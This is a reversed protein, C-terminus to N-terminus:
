HLRSPIPFTDVETLPSSSTSKEDQITRQLTFLTSVLQSIAKQLHAAQEPDKKQFVLWPIFNYRCAGGELPFSSPTIILTNVLNQANPLKEFNFWNLLSLKQCQIPMSYTEFSLEYESYWMSIEIM